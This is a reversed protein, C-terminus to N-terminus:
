KTGIIKLTQKLIPLPEVKVNPEELSGRVYVKLFAAGLGSTITDIFHPEDKGAGSYASFDVEISDTAPEYTGTGRLSATPGYLDMRSIEVVSGKVFAQVKVNDFALDKKIAELIATRISSILNKGGLQLGTAEIIIRGKSAQADRFDGKIRIEGNLSGGSREEAQPTLFKESSVGVIAIDLNYETFGGKSDTKIFADGAIRGGLCEGVFDSIAVDPNNIDYPIKMTMNEIPRGKFSLSQVELMLKCDKMGVGIDYQTDINLLAYINSVPKTNGISCNKFLATGGLKVTKQGADNKEFTIRDLSLDINGQPALKDYYTEATGLLSTFRSDFNLDVAALKLSAWAVEGGSIQMTGNLAIKGPKNMDEVVPVASLSDFEIHAPNIIIKGTIEELTLDFKELYASDNLCEVAIEYEPCKVRSNKGM